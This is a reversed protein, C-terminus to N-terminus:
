VQIHSSDNRTRLQPPPASCSPLTDTKAYTLVEAAAQADRQIAYLADILATQFRLVVSTATSL